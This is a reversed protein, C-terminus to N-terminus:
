CAELKPKMNVVCVNSILRFMSSWWLAIITHTSNNRQAVLRRRASLCFTKRQQEQRLLHFMAASNFLLVHDAEDLLQLTTDACLYLSVVLVTVVNISILWLIHVCDFVLSFAKSWVWGPETPWFMLLLYQVYSLRENDMSDSGAAQEEFM